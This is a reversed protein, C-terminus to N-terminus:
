PQNESSTEFNDVPEDPKEGRGEEDRDEGRPREPRPAPEYLQGDVFVMKVRANRELPDGAWVVVNALKGRELSGMRDAVGLARAAELTLARLAADRPLGAEIARRVGGLFSPAYGSALAFPIGAKHLAAPNKSAEDIDRRERDEDVAGGVVGRPPDFNVSVLLPVKRHKILSAVEFARPAGAVVVRIKFEEGLAIARRIDNERPATVVLPLKGELVERWASLAADFRPRRRGVPLREYLSWEERYRTADLLQQRAHAMTGMLSSPYGGGRTAMHLHMAAPQRLAMQEPRNGSFTLLVSRGPLVGERSIVLAATLGQDRARLVEGPRVRDIAMAQPQLPNAPPTAPGAPGPGPADGGGPPTAPRGGPLGLGGFADILGPTVTLGKADIVRADPPVAIKAGVAEIVGDRLVVVGNEIPPGSVPVVRAGVLAYVDVKAGRATSAMGMGAVVTTFLATWKLSTSKVSSM